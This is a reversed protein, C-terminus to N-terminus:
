NLVLKLPLTTERMKEWILIDLSSARVGLARAFNLFQVEFYRYTTMCLRRTDFLKMIRGARHIHIDIIAVNDSRRCNRVIWGATKLGVGPINLLADRLALDCVPPELEDLAHLAEAIYHAKVNPFRYKLLRGHVKAHASLLEHIQTETPQAKPALFGASALRAYFAHAVEAKIGYGGLLCFTTEHRIDQKTRPFNHKEIGDLQLWLNARWFAPTFPESYRGWRIDGLLSANPDPLALTDIRGNDRIQNIIQPM